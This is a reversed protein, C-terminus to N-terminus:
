SIYRIKCSCNRSNLYKRGLTGMHYVSFLIYFLRVNARHASSVFMMGECFSQICLGFLLISYITPHLVLVTKWPTYAIDTIMWMCACVWGARNTHTYASINSFLLRRRHTVKRSCIALCVLLVTNSIHASCRLRLWCTLDSDVKLKVFGLLLGYAFWM